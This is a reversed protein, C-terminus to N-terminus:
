RGTFSAPRKELFHAVGEKFDESAVSKLMEENGIAVAESLGQLRANYVQRKKVAMSRPSVNKALDAANAKVAPMLTGADHVQNVLGLKLAEEATLAILAVPGNIAAIIPKGISPFYSYQTQFDSREAVNYATTRYVADPEREFKTHEYAM